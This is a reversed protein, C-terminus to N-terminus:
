GFLIPLQGAVGLVPKVRELQYILQRRGERYPQGSIQYWIDAFAKSVPAHSFVGPLAKYQVYLDQAILSLAETAVVNSLVLGRPPTMLAAAVVTDGQEVIAMYPQQQIKEPSRILETSLGLILNHYAEHELLFPEAQKYFDEITCFRKLKM